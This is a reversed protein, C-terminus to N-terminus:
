NPCEPITHLYSRKRDLLVSKLPTAYNARAWRLFNRISLPHKKIGLGFQDELQDILYVKANYSGGPASNRYSRYEEVPDDGGSAATLSPHTIILYDGQNAALGYNIFNRQEFSAVTKINTAAESVLVLKRAVSSPQLVVKVTGPTSINGDYRKGNTLDYLVPTANGYTFLTIVLYNGTTNAPLEFSFNTAGNFIFKRPYTLEMKGIAMLDSPLACMNTIQFNANGASILSVPIPVTPKAYDYYDMTQGLISDGNVKVRFSRPNVANGAASLKVIPDPAGSGMYQQLLTFNFTLTGGTGIDAGTWGEGYMM